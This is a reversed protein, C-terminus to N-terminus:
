DRIVRQDFVLDNQCWTLSSKLCHHVTSIVVTLLIQDSYCESQDSTKLASFSFMQSQNLGSKSTSFMMNLPFCSSTWMQFHLLRLTSKQNYTKGLQDSHRRLSVAVMVAAEGPSIAHKSNADDQKERLRLISEYQSEVTQKDVGERKLLM